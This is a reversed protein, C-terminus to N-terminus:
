NVERSHYTGVFNIIILAIISIVGLGPENAFIFGLPYFISIFLSRLSGKVYWKEDKMKIEIYIFSLVFVLAIWVLEWHKVVKDFFFILSLPGIVILIFVYFVLKTILTKNKELKTEMIDGELM